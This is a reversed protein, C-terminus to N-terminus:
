HPTDTADLSSSRSSAELKVKNSAAEPNAPRGWYTCKINAFAPPNKCTIGPDLTPDRQFFLNFGICGAKSNCKVACVSPDYVEVVDYGLYGIAHVSAKADRFSAFYVSPVAIINALSSTKKDAQFAAASSVDLNYTNAITPESQCAARTAVRLNRKKVPAVTDVGVPLPHATVEAIASLIAASPDYAISQHQVGSAISVVPDAAAVVGNYDVKQRRKLAAASALGVVAPLLIRARM